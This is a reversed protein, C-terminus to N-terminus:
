KEGVAKKEAKEKDKFYGCLLFNHQISNYDENM